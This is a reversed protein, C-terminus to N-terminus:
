MPIRMQGVVFINAFSHFIIYSIYMYLLLSIFGHQAIKLVVFTAMLAFLDHIINAGESQDDSFYDTWQQLNYLNLLAYYSVIFLVLFAVLLDLRLQYSGAAV